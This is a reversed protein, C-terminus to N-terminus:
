LTLEVGDPRSLKLSSHVVRRGDEGLELRLQGRYSGTGVVLRRIPIVVLWRNDEKSAPGIGYDVATRGATFGLQSRVELTASPQCWRLAQDLDPKDLMAQAFGQAVQPPTLGASDPGGAQQPAPGCALLVLLLLLVCKRM